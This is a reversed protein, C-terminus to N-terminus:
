ANTFTMTWKIRKDNTEGPQMMWLTYYKGDAWTNIFDDYYKSGPNGSQGGPYVGYAETPTTLQVIMRWSPGHTSTIANIVNGWGGVHLGERGFPLVASKLLHYISPNKHKWWLLNDIPAEKSLDVAALKFAKTVQQPLTEKQPTTIDDIYAFASDKLLAEVLTEEDPLITRAQVQALEDKWIVSKLSDLWTQYITPAKADATTMYDWHKIFDLYQKESNDLSNKEINRLLLPVIVAATVSYYDNQLQMMDQPIIQQMQALRRSITIGRPTIYDGPIFYPYSSDVPRQNASEIYGVPPNIIHPNEAQPIIGQWRYSSDEGPMIYLGQGPWRAPFQGQQWIAINGSKSAFIFNQGPCHFNKIAEAYEDYNKARDLQYLALLENSPDHASWRLALAKNEPLGSAFSNDYMVPGFVTYAVTDLVMASGRVKIQEIRQQTPQWTSDFWYEKKTDDKFRIQYYDKVDRMANTVGFAISDNFGIVVTPAGPFSVGYVNTTPTNIQLEYWISPLTLDLHPDNCLIPAGSLTKQGSVAWNNSGNIRNPKNAEHVPIITDNKFYLSDASFPKKPVIGATDFVTGKPVIPVLSDAVQPYLLRMEKENFVTKENTFEIDRDYGALTKSIQKAFLAIKINSWKEPKYDLLKYEVPLESESLSAIYANVGATYANCTANTVPNAEIEKLANEAGYVMGLRRQERDFHIFRPDNGLKESIRGAAALTQFEMQWLRFRAHLYGQVFYADDENDAFIHPVLRDDIYVEAKGKIGTLSLHQSYDYDVPEANQWFGQQPSLFKGLPPVAGWKNNLAVVLLLTLVTSIIFPLLRM